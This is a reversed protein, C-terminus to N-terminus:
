KNRQRQKQCRQEMMTFLREADIASARRRMLSAGASQPLTTGNFVTTWFYSLFFPVLYTCAHASVSRLWVGRVRRKREGPMPIEDTLKEVIPRVTTVEEIPLGEAIMNMGVGLGRVCGFRVGTKKRDDDAVFIQGDTLISFPMMQPRETYKPRDFVIAVVFTNTRDTMGFAVSTQDKEEWPDSIEM